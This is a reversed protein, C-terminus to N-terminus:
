VRENNKTAYAGPLTFKILIPAVKGEDENVEQMLLISVIDKEGERMEDKLKICLEIEKTETDFYTVYPIPHDACDYIRYLAAEPMDSTLIM